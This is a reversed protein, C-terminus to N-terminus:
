RARVGYRVPNHRVRPYRDIGAFSFVLKRTYGRLLDGIREIRRLLEEPPLRDTLLLPDFRWIALDPGWRDALRRFTDIRADLPPLGPELGEPGYDNLTYQFYVGIGRKRLEDLRPLLPAPHKSRFVVLRMRRFSVFFRRGDFPNTRACYGKELRRFFWGTYFAPIDTARSASVVVPASAAVRAGGDTTLETAARKM